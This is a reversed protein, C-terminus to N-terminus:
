EFKGNDLLGGIDLEPVGEVLRLMHSLHSTVLEFEPSDVIEIQEEDVEWDGELIDVGRLAVRGFPPSVCLLRLDVGTYGNEMQEQTRRLELKRPLTGRWAVQSAM